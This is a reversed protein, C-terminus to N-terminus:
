EGSARRAISKDTLYALNPRSFAMFVLGDDREIKDFAVTGRTQSRPNLMIKGNRYVGLLIAPNQSRASRHKNIIEVCEEFTKNACIGPIKRKDKDEVVYIENTHASYDLLEGYVNSLNHHLACQALVGLGLETACVTEHVGVVKLKAVMGQDLVEAAIHPGLERPQGSDDEGFKEEIKMKIALAIDVSKDDPDRPKDDDCHEDDALIIISKALHIRCSELVGPSDPCGKEIYVNDYKKPDNKRLEQEDVDRDTVIVIDTGPAAEQRHLQEVIKHGRKNWNCIVVHMKIHPPMKKEKTIYMAAFKGTVLGGLGAGLVGVTLAATMMGGQTVPVQHEFGTSLYMFMSCFSRYLNEFQENYPGELFVMLIAGLAYVCFFVIAVRAYGSKGLANPFFRRNVFYYVLFLIISVSFIYNLMKPWHKRLKMLFSVGELYQKAAPHLDITMGKTASDVTINAGQTHMKKLTATKEFIAAVVKRVVEPELNKRAVLLSRVGLTAIRKDQGKYTGAPISHSVLNSCSKHSSRALEKPLEIFRIQGRKCVEAIGPTPIGAIIFAAENADNPDEVAECAEKLSLTTQTVDSRELGAASLIDIVASFKRTEIPKTCVTRGRLDRVERVDSDKRVIIQISETYLSAVGAITQSPLAWLKEGHYFWHAINNQTFAFDAEGKEILGLNDVAGDTKVVKITISPDVEEVAAKIGLGLQYYVGSESGTALVYTRPEGPQGYGANVCLVFILILVPINNRIIRM